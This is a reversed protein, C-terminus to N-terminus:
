YVETKKKETDILARERKTLENKKALTESKM